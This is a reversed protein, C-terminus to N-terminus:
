VNLHLQKSPATFKYYVKWPHISCLSLKSVITAGYDSFEFSFLLKYNM